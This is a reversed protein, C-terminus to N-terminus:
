RSRHGRGVPRRRGAYAQKLHRLLWLDFAALASVALAFITFALWSTAYDVGGKLVVASLPPQEPPYELLLAHASNFLLSHRVDGPGVIGLVALASFVAVIALFDRALPALRRSWRGIM